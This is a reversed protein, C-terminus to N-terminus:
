CSMPLQSDEDVYELYEVRRESMVSMDLGETQKVGVSWMKGNGEALKVRM